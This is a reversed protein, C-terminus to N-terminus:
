DTKGNEHLFSAMYIRLVLLARRHAALLEARKVTYLWPVEYDPAKCIWDPRSPSQVATSEQLPAGLGAFPLRAAPVRRTNALEPPGMRSQRPPLRHTRSFVVVASERRWCPGSAGCERCRGTESSTVHTDLVRRAESLRRDALVAFAVDQHPQSGM